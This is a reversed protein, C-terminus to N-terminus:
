SALRTLDTIACTLIEARSEMTLRSALIVLIGHVTM